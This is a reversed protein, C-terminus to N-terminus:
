AARTGLLVRVKVEQGATTAAELAVAGINDATTGANIGRGDSDAKLNANVAFAAGAIITCEAGDKFVTIPPSVTTGCYGDDLANAGPIGLPPLWVGKDSIGFVVDGASGAGDTAQLVSYAVSDAKVFRSPKVNGGCRRTCTVTESAM